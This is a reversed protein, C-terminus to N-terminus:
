HIIDSTLDPHEAQFHLGFASIGGPMFAGIALAEALANFAHATEHKKKTVFMIRDGQSAIINVISPIRDQISFWSQRQLQEIWMPVALELTSMLLALKLELTVDITM